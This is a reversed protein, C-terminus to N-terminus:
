FRREAFGAVADLFTELQIGFEGGPAQPCGPLEVADPLLELLADVTARRHAADDPDAPVIGVPVELGRLEEDDVGRLTEGALLADVAEAPAGRGTLLRRTPEDNVPTAPWALVLGVVVDPRALTLRTAASCGDSGAVVVVPEATLREALWSAEAQWDKPHNMREPALVDFGRRRLGHSVGPRHWFHEADVGNWLGGAILLVTRM